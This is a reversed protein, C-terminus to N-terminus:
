GGCLLALAGRLSHCLQGLTELRHFLRHGMETREEVLGQLENFLKVVDQRCLLRFVNLGDRRYQPLCLLIHCLPVHARV